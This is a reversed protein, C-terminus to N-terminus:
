YTNVTYQRMGPGSCFSRDVRVLKTTFQEERMDLQSVLDSLPVNHNNIRLLKESSNLSVTSMESSSKFSPSQSVAYPIGSEKLKKLNLQMAAINIIDWRESFTVYNIVWGGKDRSSSIFSRGTSDDPVRCLLSFNFGPEATTKLRLASGVELMIYDHTPGMMPYTNRLVLKLSPARYCGSAEVPLSALPVNGPSGEGCIPLAFQASQCALIQLMVVTMLIVNRLKDFAM